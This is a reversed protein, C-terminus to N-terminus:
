DKPDVIVWEIRTVPKPRTAAATHGPKGHARELIANAAAIRSAESKGERMVEALAKL